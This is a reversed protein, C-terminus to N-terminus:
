SLVDDEDYKSFTPPIIRNVLRVVSVIHFPSVGQGYPLYYDAVLTNENAVSFRVLIIEDNLRNVFGLKQAESADERLGYIAVFHLLANADNVSILVKIGNETRVCLDGDEDIEADIYANQFVSLIRDLSIEKASIWQTPATLSDSPPSVPTEDLENTELFESWETEFQAATLQTEDPLAPFNGRALEVWYRIKPDPSAGFHKEMTERISKAMPANGTHDYCRAAGQLARAVQVRLNTDEAKAFQLFVQQLLPLAESFREGMLLKEARENLDLARQFNSM